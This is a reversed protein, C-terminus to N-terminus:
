STSNGCWVLHYAAICDVLVNREMPMNESHAFIFSSSLIFFSKSFTFICTYALYSSLQTHTSLQQVINNTCEFTLVRKYTQRNISTCTCHNLIDPPESKAYEPSRRIAITISLRSQSHNIFRSM